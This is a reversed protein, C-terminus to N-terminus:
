EERSLRFSKGTLEIIEAREGLRDIIRGDYRDFFKSKPLPTTILLVKNYRSDYAGSIIEELVVRSQFGDRVEDEGGMEDLILGRRNIVSNFLNAKTIGATQLAMILRRVSYFRYREPYGRQYIGQWDVRGGFLYAYKLSDVALRTKGIGNMNGSFIVWKGRKAFEITKKLIRKQHNFEADFNNFGTGYFDKPIHALREFEGLVAPTVRKSDELRRAEEAEWRAELKREGLKFPLVEGISKPQNIM